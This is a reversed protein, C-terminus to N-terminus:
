NDRQTPPTSGHTDHARTHPHVPAPCPRKPHPPTPPARQPRQPPGMAGPGLAALSSGPPTGRLAHDLR